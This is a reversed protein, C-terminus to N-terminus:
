SSSPSCCPSSTPTPFWGASTTKTSKRAAHTPAMRETGTGPSIARSAAKSSARITAMPSASWATSTCRACRWWDAPHQGAAEQRDAPLDPQRLWRRLDDRRLCRRHRRRAQVSRFPEGDRPDPGHGRRPHRHDARLRRRIGLDQAAAEDADEYTDIEVELVERLREPEAGDVLLQLGERAFPDRLTPLRRKWRWCAKRARSRPELQRDAPDTRRPVVVRRSSCGARWACASCSRRGASKAADRRGAHRRHRHLVGHAAGAFRCPRGRAGPRSRHRPHRAVLGVLSIKDM